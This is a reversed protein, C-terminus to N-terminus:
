FTDLAEQPSGKYGSVGAYGSFGGFGAYTRTIRVFEQKWDWNNLIFKSFSVDDLVIDKDVSLEMMRIVREYDSGHDTPVSLDLYASIIKKNRIDKLCKNLVKEAKEWYAETAAKYIMDHKGKNKRVIKLVEEVRVKVEKM